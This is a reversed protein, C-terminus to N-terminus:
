DGCWPAPGVKLDVAFLLFVPSEGQPWVAHEGRCVSMKSKSPCEPVVDREM